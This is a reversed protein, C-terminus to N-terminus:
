VVGDGSRVNQKGLKKESECGLLLASVLFVSFLKM